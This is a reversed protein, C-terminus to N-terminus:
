LMRRLVGDRKVAAHWIAAGVHVLVLTLIVNGTIAHLDYLTKSLADDRSLIAPLNWSFFQVPFGGAGTALWGLVPMLLLLAYFLGHVANSAASEFRTLPKAYDPKGLSIKVAIRVAMLAFIVIGFTKHYTYILNTMDLGFAAKLGEFGYNEIIKGGAIVAIVLLAIVWHLLRQVPAYRQM